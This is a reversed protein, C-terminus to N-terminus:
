LLGYTATEEDMDYHFDDEEEEESMSEAEVEPPKTHLPIGQFSLSIHSSFNENAHRFTISVDVFAPHKDYHNPLLLYLEM